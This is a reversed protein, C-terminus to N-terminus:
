RWPATACKEPLRAARDPDVRARYRPKDPIRSKRSPFAPHFARPAPPETKRSRSAESYRSLGCSSLRSVSSVTTGSIRPRMEKFSSSLCHLFDFCEDLRVLQVVYFVSQNGSTHGTHRNGFHTAVAALFPM